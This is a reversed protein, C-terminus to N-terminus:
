GKVMNNDVATMNPTSQLKLVDWGISSVNLTSQFSGRCVWTNNALAHEPVVGRHVIVAEAHPLHITASSSSAALEAWFMETATVAAISASCMLSAPLVLSRIWSM